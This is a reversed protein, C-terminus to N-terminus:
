NRLPKAEVSRAILRALDRTERFHSEGSRGLVAFGSPGRFFLIDTFVDGELRYSWEVIPEGDSAHFVHKSIRRYAVGNEALSRELKAQFPLATKGVNEPDIASTDIDISNSYPGIALTVHRDGPNLDYNERLHWGRPLRAVYAPTEYRRCCDKGLVFFPTSTDGDVVRGDITTLKLHLLYRGSSAPMPIWQRLAFHETEHAPSVKAGNVVVAKLAVGPASADAARLSWHPLLADNKLGDLDVSAVTLYGHSDGPGDVLARGMRPVKVQVSASTGSLIPPSFSPDIASKGVFAVLTTFVTLGISALVITALVLLRKWRAILGVREWRIPATSVDAVPREQRKGHRNSM